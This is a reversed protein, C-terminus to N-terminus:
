RPVAAGVNGEVPPQKERPRMKAGRRWAFVLGAFVLLLGAALVAGNFARPYGGSALHQYDWCFPAMMVLGGALLLLWGVPGARLPRGVAESWFFWGPAAAMATYAALPAWVPGVWPLPVIFIVDWDSLSHPWGMLVKLWLYFSWGTVGLLLFVTAAWRRVTPAVALAVLALALVTGIERVVEMVPSRVYAPAERAWQEFSFAPFLDDPARDPFLRKHMPEYMVRIYVVTAAELYGVVVGFLVLIVLLRSM